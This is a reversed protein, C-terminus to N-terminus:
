PALATLFRMQMTQLWWTQPLKSSCWYSTLVAAWVPLAPMKNLTVVGRFCFTVHEQGISEALEGFSIIPLFPEWIRFLALYNDTVIIPRLLLHYPLDKQRSCDYGM